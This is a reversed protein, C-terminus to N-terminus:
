HGIGILKVSLLRINKECIVRLIRYDHEQRQICKLASVFSSFTFHILVLISCKTLEHFNGKMLNM